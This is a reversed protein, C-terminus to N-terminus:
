NFDHRDFAAIVLLFLHAEEPSALDLCLESLHDVHYTNLSRLGLHEEVM